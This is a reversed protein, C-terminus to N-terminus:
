LKSRVTDADKLRIKDENFRSGSYEYNGRVQCSRLIKLEKCDYSVVVVGKDMAAKLAGRNDAKLDIVWPEADETPSTCKGGMADKASPQDARVAKAGVFLSKM